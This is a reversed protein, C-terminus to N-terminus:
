DGVIVCGGGMSRAEYIARDARDLLNELSEDEKHQAVGASFTVKGGKGASGGAEDFNGKIRETVRGADKASAEPVIAAFEDGGYRFASDVSRRLTKQMAEGMRALIMDGEQHGHEENYKKFGDIDMMIISVNHGQRKARGTEEKLRAMFHRRNYLRTLNDTIALKKLEEEMRKKFTVDKLVGIVSKRGSRELVPSFTAIFTRGNKSDVEKSVDGEGFSKINCRPCLADNGPFSTHFRSGISPAGFTDRTVKNMYTINCSEDVIVVADGMGDMISSLSADEEPAALSTEGLYSFIFLYGGDKGSGSALTFVQAFFKGQATEFNLYAGGKDGASWTEDHAHITQLALRAEDRRNEPFIDFFPKGFVREEEAELGFKLAFFRYNVNVLGISFDSSTTIIAIEKGLERM